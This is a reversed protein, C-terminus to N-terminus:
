GAENMPDRGAAARAVFTELSTQPLGDRGQAIGAPVRQDVTDALVGAQLVQSIGPHLPRVMAALSRVLGLPLHTVKATTGAAREYLRVVDMNSHHGPGALNVVEGAFAGDELAAVAAAAVDDAAVFNRPREGRGFMMVRQSTLVPQGILLHAHTEMFATPRLITYTLGSRVFAAETELKIRFFPVTRYAPNFDYVSTYVLRRVGAAKAAAVLAANGRGDVHASAHRGRGFLSHAAALVGDVGTCARALSAPDLLDGAVIEVLPGALPSAADPRRTMLRVRAGAATLRAIVARGLVGSGGVVLHM